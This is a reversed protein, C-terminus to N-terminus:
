SVRKGIAFIVDGKGLRNQRLNGSRANVDTQPVEQLHPRGGSDLAALASSHSGILSLATPDPYSVTWLKKLHFGTLALIRKLSKPSYIFRHEEPKWHAWAPGSLKLQESDLNPTSLILFGGPNVLLALVGSDSELSM